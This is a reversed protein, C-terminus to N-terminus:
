PQKIYPGKGGSANTPNPGPMLKDGAANIYWWEFLVDGNGADLGSERWGAIGKYLEYGWDPRVSELRYGTPHEAALTPSAFEGSNEVANWRMKEGDYGKGDATRVFAITSETIVIKSIEIGGESWVWTGYFAPDGATSGSPKKDDFHCGIQVNQGPMTFETTIMTTTSLEVGPGAVWHSFGQESNYSVGTPNVATLSVASGPEARFMKNSGSVPQGDITAIIDSDDPGGTYLAITVQYTIEEFAAKVVVNGAPMRFTAPQFVTSNDLLVNDSCQWSVWKYGDDPTAFIRMNRGQEAESVETEGILAKVSGGTTQRCDIDFFVLDDRLRFAAKVTVDNKPMTFHTVAANADDVTAGTVTWELFTYQERSAIDVKPISVLKVLTGSLAETIKTETAGSTYAAFTGGVVGDTDLAIQQMTPIDIETINARLEVNGAPMTFTTTASNADDLAVDGSVVEWGTFEYTETDAPDVEAVITVVEEAYAKSVTLNDVTARASGHEVASFAISYTTPGTQTEKGPQETQPDRDCGALGPSFGLAAASVAFLLNKIPSKM